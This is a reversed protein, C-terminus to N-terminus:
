NISINYKRYFNRAFSEGSLLHPVFGFLIQLLYEARKRHTISSTVSYVENEDVSTYVVSFMNFSQIENMMSIYRNSEKQSSFIIGLHKILEDQITTEPVWRMDNDWPLIGQEEASIIPIRTHATGITNEEHDGLIHVYYFLAGLSDKKKSDFLSFNFFKGLADCLLKQRILWTRNPYITGGYYGLTEPYIHDWGLHSYVGHTNGGPTIFEKLNPITGINLENKHLTLYEMAETGEMYPEGNAKM